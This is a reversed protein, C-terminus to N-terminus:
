RRYFFFVRRHYVDVPIKYIQSVLSRGSSWQYSELTSSCNFHAKKMWSNWSMSKFLTHIHTLALFDMCSHVYNACKYSNIQVIRGVCCRSNVLSIKQLFSSIYCTWFPLLVFQFDYFFGRLVPSKIAIRRYGSFLTKWYNGQVAM